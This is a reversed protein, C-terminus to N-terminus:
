KTTIKSNNKILKDLYQKAKLLDEMGNKHRWRTVYKIINGEFFDLGQSHAYEWMEIGKTYHAPHKVIDDKVDGVKIKSPLSTKLANARVNALTNNVV